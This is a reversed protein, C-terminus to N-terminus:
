RDALGILVNTQVVAETPFLRLPKLDNGLCSFPVQVAFFMLTGPQCYVVVM